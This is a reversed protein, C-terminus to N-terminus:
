LKIIKNLQISNNIKIKNFIDLTLIYKIFQEETNEKNEKLYSIIGQLFNIYDDTIDDEKIIDIISEFIKIYDKYYYLDYYEEATAFDWIVILFGINQIYYNNSLINYEFHSNSKTIIHYLFNGSHTDNHIYGIKHFSYITIIIQAILNNYFEKNKINHNELLDSIDGEAIENLNIYYNNTETLEPYHSYNGHPEKCLSSFYSIPFHINKKQLVEYTLLNLIKIEKKNDDDQRMIKCSVIISKEFSFDIDGVVKFIIGNVSDTGIQKVLILLNNDGISYIYNSSDELLEKDQLISYLSSGKNLKKLCENKKIHHYQIYMKILYYTKIREKISFNKISLNKLLNHSKKSLKNSSEM